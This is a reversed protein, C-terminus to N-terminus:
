PPTAGGAVLPPRRHRSTLTGSTVTIVQREGRRRGTVSRVLNSNSASFVLATNTTSQAGVNNV